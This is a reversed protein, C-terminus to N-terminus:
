FMFTISPPTVDTQKQMYKHKHSGTKILLTGAKDYLMISSDQLNTGLGSSLAYLDGSGLLTFSHLPVQSLPTHVRLMSSSFIHRGQHVHLVM